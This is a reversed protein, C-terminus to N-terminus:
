KYKEYINQMEEAKIYHLTMPTKVYLKVDYDYIHSQSEYHTPHQGFMHFLHTVEIGFYKSIMYAIAVDSYPYAYGSKEIWLKNFDDIVDYCKKMLSNSIFFCAGGALARFKNNSNSNEHIYPEDTWLGCPQGLLIDSNRDYKSLEEMIRDKFLVNDCNSVCYWDYNPNDEYIYKLGLQQKLFHSNYDEGAEQISILNEDPINGGFLYINDFDNVWTNKCATYRNKLNVSTVLSIGINDNM